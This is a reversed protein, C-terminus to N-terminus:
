IGADDPPTTVPAAKGEPPIGGKVGKAGKTDPPTGGKPEGDPDAATSEVVPKRVAAPNVQKIQDLEESTFNFPEGIKPKIRGGDKRNLIVTQVPIRIPM